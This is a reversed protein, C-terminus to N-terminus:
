DTQQSQQIATKPSIIKLKPQYTKFRALDRTVLPIKLHNAHEGIYFDPMPSKKDGKNKRYKKFVRSVNFGVEVPIDLIEIALLELVKTLKNPSDFNFAIETFIIINIALQNDKSLNFLTKSSWDCWSDDDNFIDLLVCSDVFIYNTKDM